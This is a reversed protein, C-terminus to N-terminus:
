GITKSNNTPLIGTSETLNTIDTSNNALTSGENTTSSNTKLDTIKNELSTIESRLENSQSQSKKAEKKYKRVFFYAVSTGAVVGLATLIWSLNRSFWGEKEKEQEGMMASQIAQMEKKKDETTKSTIPTTTDTPQTTAKKSETTKPLTIKTSSKPTRSVAPKTQYHNATVSNSGNSPFVLTEPLTIETGESGTNQEVTADTTQVNNSVNENETSTNNEMVTETATTETSVPAEVSQVNNEATQQLRREKAAKISQFFHANVDTILTDQAIILWNDGVKGAHPHDKLTIQSRLYLGFDSNYQNKVTKLVEIDNSDSSNQIAWDILATREDLSLDMGLNQIKSKKNKDDVLQYLSELWKTNYEQNPETTGVMALMLHKMMGGESEPLNLRQILNYLEKNEEPNNIIEQYRQVAKQTLAEIEPSPTQGSNQAQAYQHVAMWTDAIKDWDVSLGAAQMMTRLNLISFSLDQSHQIANDVINHIETQYQQIISNSQNTATEAM